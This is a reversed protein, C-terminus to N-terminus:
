VHVSEHFLVERYVLTSLIYIALNTIRLDHLDYM